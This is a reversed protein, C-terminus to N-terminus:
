AADASRRCLRRAARRGGVGCHRGGPGPERGVRWRGVRWRRWLRGRWLRRRWLRGGALRGGRWLRETRRQRGSREGGGGGSSRCSPSTTTMGPLARLRGGGRPWWIAPVEAQGASQLLRLSRRVIRVQKWFLVEVFLCANDKALAFFRRTIFACTAYLDAHQPQKANPNSLVSHLTRLISLQFLMAELKCQRVLRSILKLACHVAIPPVSEFHALLSVYRTVIERNGIFKYLEHEFDLASEMM